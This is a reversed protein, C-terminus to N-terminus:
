TNQALLESLAQQDKYIEEPSMEVFDKTDHDYKLPKASDGPELHLRMAKFLKGQLEMVQNRLWENEKELHHEYKDFM